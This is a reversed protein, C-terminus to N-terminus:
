LQVPCGGQKLSLTAAELIRVIRLGARGDTIPRRGRV